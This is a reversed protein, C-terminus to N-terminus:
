ISFVKVIHCEDKRSFVSTHLITIEGLCHNFGLSVFIVLHFSLTLKFCMHQIVFWTPTDANKM